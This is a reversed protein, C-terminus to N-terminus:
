TDYITSEVKAFKKILQGAIAHATDEIESLIDDPKTELEGNEYQKHHMMEHAISRLIDVLARNKGCVNIQKDFIYNATTKLGDRNNKIIIKPVKKLKLEDKVFLVFNTLTKKKEDNLFEM